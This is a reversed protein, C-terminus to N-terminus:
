EYKRAIPAFAAEVQEWQQHVAQTLSAALARDALRSLDRPPAGRTPLPVGCNHLARPAAKFLWQINTNIDDVGYNFLLDFVAERYAPGIKNKTVKAGVEIGIVREIGSVTKKIKGVERLWVIQSAYFDLAKGGSRTKSSGYTVGINERVQSIIFVTVGKKKLERIRRRFMESLLKPKLAGYGHQGIEDKTEKEDTLADLSDVVVLREGSELQAFYRDLDEVTHLDDRLEADDPFGVVKAYDRDFASEFELYDIKGGLRAFNAAAEIALLTKGTSRDGVVNIVRHQAWGGGLACDLVTCGSVIVPASAKPTYLGSPQEQLVVRKRM